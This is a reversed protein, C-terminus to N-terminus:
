KELFYLSQAVATSNTGPNGDFTKKSAIQIEGHLVFNVIRQVVPWHFFPSAVYKYGFRGLRTQWKAIKMMNTAPIHLIDELLQILPFDVPAAPM